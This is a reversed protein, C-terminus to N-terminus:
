ETDERVARTVPPPAAPAAGCDFENPRASAAAARRRTAAPDILRMSGLTILGIKVQQNDDVLLFQGIANGIPLAGLLARLIGGAEVVLQAHGFVLGDLDEHFHKLM